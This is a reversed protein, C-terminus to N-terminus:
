RDLVYEWARANAHKAQRGGKRLKAGFNNVLTVIPVDENSPPESFHMHSPIIHGDEFFIREMQSKLQPVGDM